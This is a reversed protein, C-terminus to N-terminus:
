KTISKHMLPKAVPILGRKWESDHTHSSAMHASCTDSADAILRRHTQSAHTYIIQSRLFETHLCGSNLAKIM